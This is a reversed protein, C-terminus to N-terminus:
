KQPNFNRDLRLGMTDSVPVSFTVTGLEPKESAQHMLAQM